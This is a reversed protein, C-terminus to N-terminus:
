KSEVGLRALAAVVRGVDDADDAGICLELLRRRPASLLRLQEGGDVTALADGASPTLGFEEYYAAVPAVQPVGVTISVLGHLAVLHAGHRRARRDGLKRDRGPGRDRHAGRRGGGPTDLPPARRR